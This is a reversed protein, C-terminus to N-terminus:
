CAITGVTTGHIGLFHRNPALKTGNEPQSVLMGDIETAAFQTRLKQLRNKRPLTAAEM